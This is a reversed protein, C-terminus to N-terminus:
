DQFRSCNRGAAKAAYMARDTRSILRTVDDGDRAISVGCSATVRRGVITALQGSREIAIRLREALALAGSQNDITGLVLFEEGGFRAFIDGARLVPKVAEVIAKLVQDGKAHGLQDNIAKFHDIDFELLTLLTKNREAASLQASAIELFMRRNIIGTLEDHAAQYQYKECLAALKLHDEIVKAFRHIFRKELSSTQKPQRDLICFTGFNDGSPWNVSVGYYSIMGLEIDPNERWDPDALADWVELPKNTEIVTECYLDHNRPATEGIKYPNHPRDACAMVEMTDPNGRMVLCAPVDCFEGVLETIDNWDQILQDPLNSTKNLM